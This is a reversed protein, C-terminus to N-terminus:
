RAKGTLALIQRDGLHVTRDTRITLRSRVNILSERSPFRDRVREGKALHAAITRVFAANLGAKDSEKELEEALGELEIRDMNAMDVLLDRPRAPPPPPTIPVPLPAPTELQERLEAVPKRIQKAPGRPKRTFHGAEAHVFAAVIEGTLDADDLIADVTYNVAGDLPAGGEVHETLISRVKSRPTVTKM